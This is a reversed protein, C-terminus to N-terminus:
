MKIATCISQTESVVEFSFERMCGQVALTTRSFVAGQSQCCKWSQHSLLPSRAKIQAALFLYFSQCSLSFARTGSCDCCRHFCQTGESGCAVAPWCVALTDKERIQIQCNERKIVDKWTACSTVLHGCLGQESGQCVSCNDENLHRHFVIATALNCSLFTKKMLVKGM